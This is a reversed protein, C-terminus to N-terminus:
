PWPLFSDHEECSRKVWELAKDQDGRVQNIQYFCVPPVYEDRSRQKLSDFLKETKAKKGSEYYTTALFTVVKPNGGSLEVAREFEAIAEELMSKVLYAQGLILHALFYNPNITITMQLEEIAKDYQCRMIFAHGVMASFNSSLPDLEQSRKIESIAEEHRKTVTLLHSYWLHVLASNPNLELARKYEQEAM